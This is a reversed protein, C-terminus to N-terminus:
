TQHREPAQLISSCSGHWVHRPQEDVDEDINDRPSAVPSVGLLGAVVPPMAMQFIDSDGSSPIGVKPSSGSLASHQECGESSKDYSVLALSRLHAAANAGTNNVLSTFISNKDQVLQTQPRPHHEDAGSDRARPTGNHACTCAHLLLRVQGGLGMM